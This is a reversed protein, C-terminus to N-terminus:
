KRKKKTGGSFAMLLYYLGSAGILLNVIQGVQGLNLMEIINFGLATLGVNIAGLVMIWWAVMTINM